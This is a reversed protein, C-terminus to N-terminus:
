IKFARNLKSKYNTQTSNSHCHSRISTTNSNHKMTQRTTISYDSKDLSILIKRDSTDKEWTHANNTGFYRWDLNETVGSLENILELVNSPRDNMDVSMCKNVIRQLKIPIHSLYSTKDPFSGDLIAEFYEQQTGFSFQNYYHQNGNLLRYITVGALFIDYQITHESHTLAEPPIQKPYFFDPSAFGLSNMAKALGFDSLLAENSDTLLINDPKIDFHILKKSHINNLGSLFQISYRLVERITLFNTDILRKLSGKQYYPMAIYINDADSCGYYISVVNPHSSTYLVKAENYYDSSDPIKSKLIKKIVIDGGLQLDHAIFVQSNRGEQGIETITEFNLNTTHLGLPM